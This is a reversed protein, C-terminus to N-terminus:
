FLAGLLVLVAYGIVPAPLLAFAVARERAPVKKWRFLVVVVCGLSVLVGFFACAAFRFNAELADGLGDGTEPATLALIVGAMNLLLVVVMVSWIGRSM